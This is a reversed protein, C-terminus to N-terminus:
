RDDTRESLMGCAEAAAILAARTEEITAKDELAAYCLEFARRWVKSARRDWERLREIAAEVTTVRYTLGSGPAGKIM